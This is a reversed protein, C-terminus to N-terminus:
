DDYTPKINKMVTDDYPIGFFDRKGSNSSNNEAWFESPTIYELLGGENEKKSFSSFDNFLDALLGKFM